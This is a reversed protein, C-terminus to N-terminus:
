QCYKWWLDFGRPPLRKYRRQYEAAAEGLTKSQRKVKADWESKANAIIDYLPHKSTTMDVPELGPLTRAVRPATEKNVTRLARVGAPRVSPRVKSPIFQDSAPASRRFILSLTFIAVLLFVFRWTRRSLTRRWWYLMSRIRVLLSTREESRWYIGDNLEDEGYTFTPVNPYQASESGRSKHQKRDATLPHQRDRGNQTMYSGAALGEPGNESFPTSPTSM